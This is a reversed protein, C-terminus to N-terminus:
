QINCEQKHIFKESYQIRITAALHEEEEEELPHHGEGELPHEGLLDVGKMHYQVAGAASLM